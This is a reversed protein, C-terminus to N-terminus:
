RPRLRNQVDRELTSNRLGIRRAEGMAEGPPLGHREGRFLAWVAGTRSGNACHMLVKESRSATRNLLQYVRQLQDLDPVKDEMPVHLYKIDAAELAAREDFAVGTMEPSSRLNIVATIGATKLQGIDERAPQGSFYVDGGFTSVKPVKALNAAAISEGGRWTSPKKDGAAKFVYVHQIPLFEGREELEFGATTWEKMMDTITTFHQRLGPTELPPGWGEWVDEMHQEARFEVLAVRGGPALSRRIQELVPEPKQIEHYVDIMVLWDVKRSPLHPDDEAGMLPYVNRVGLQVMRERLQNLMHEQFDEAIVFGRPAVMQAMLFTARGPGSGLDVVIQGDRLGMRKFVEEHRELKTIPATLLANADECCVSSPQRTRQAASELPIWLLVAALLLLGGPTVNRRLFSTRM